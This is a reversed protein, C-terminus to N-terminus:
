LPKETFQIIQRREKKTPRGQGARRIGPQLKLAEQLHERQQVSEESERYLAQAITASRRQASLARIEVTKSFVGQKIILIDGVVVERSAKIREGALLVKGNKIASAAVSRTKFFRAAWLWKDVRLKELDSPSQSQSM